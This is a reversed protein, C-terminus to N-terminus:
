RFQGDGIAIEGVRGEVVEGGGGMRRRLVREGPRHGRDLGGSRPSERADRVDVGGGLDEAAEQTVIKDVAPEVDPFGVTM